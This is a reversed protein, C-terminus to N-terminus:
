LFNSSHRLIITLNDYSIKYIPGGIVSAVVWAEGLYGRAFNAVGCPDFSDCLEYDRSRYQAPPARLHVAAYTMTRAHATSNLARTYHPPSAPPRRGGVKKSLPSADGVERM